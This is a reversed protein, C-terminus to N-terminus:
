SHMGRVRNSLILDPISRCSLPGAYFYQRGLTEAPPRHGTLDHSPLRVLQLIVDAGNLLKVELRIFGNNPDKKSHKQAQM